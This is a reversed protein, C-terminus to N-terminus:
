WLHCSEPFYIHARTSLDACATKLAKLYLLILVLKIQKSLSQVSLPLSSLCFSPTLLSLSLGYLTVHPKNWPLVCVCVCLSHSPFQCSWFLLWVALSLTVSVSSVCVFCASCFVCVFIWMWVFMECRFCKELQPVSLCTCGRRGAMEIRRNNIFTVYYHWKIM